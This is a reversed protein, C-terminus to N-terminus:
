FKQFDNKYTEFFDSKKPHVIYGVFRYMRMNFYKTNQAVRFHLLISILITLRAYLVAFFIM